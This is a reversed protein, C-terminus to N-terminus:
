PQDQLPHLRLIEVSKWWCQNVSGVHATRCRCSLSIKSLFAPWMMRLHEVFLTVADKGLTKDEQATEFTEVLDAYRQFSGEWRPMAHCYKPCRQVRSSVKGFLWWAMAQSREQARLCASRKGPVLQCIRGSCFAAVLWRYDEIAMSLWQYGDIAMPRWQAVSWSQLVQLLWLMHICTM